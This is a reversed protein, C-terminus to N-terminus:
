QSGQWQLVVLVPDHDSVVPEDLLTVEKVQWADCSRVLVYDIVSRPAFADSRATIRRSSACYV